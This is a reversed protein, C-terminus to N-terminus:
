KERAMQIKREVYWWDWCYLDYKDMYSLQRGTIQEMNFAHKRNDEVEKLILRKDGDSLQDWIEMLKDRMLDPAYSHRNLTYRFAYIIIDRDFESNLIM